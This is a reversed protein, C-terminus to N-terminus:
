ANGDEPDYYYILLRGTVNGTNASDNDVRMSVIAGQEVPILVPLMIDGEPAAYQVRSRSFKNHANGNIMLSHYLDPDLTADWAQGYGAIYAAKGKRVTFTLIEQRATSAAVSAQLHVIDWDVPKRGLFLPGQGM